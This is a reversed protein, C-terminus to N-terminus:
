EEHWGLGELDFDRIAKNAKDKGHYKAIQQLLLSIINHSYPRVDVYPREAKIKARLDRLTPEIM